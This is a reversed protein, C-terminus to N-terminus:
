LEDAADSTYLLCSLFIIMLIRTEAMNGFFYKRFVFFLFAAEDM